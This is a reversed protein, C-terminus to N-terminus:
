ELGQSPVCWRISPMKSCKQKNNKHIQINKGVSMCIVKICHGCVASFLLLNGSRCANTLQCESHQSNFGCNRSSCYEEICDDRWGRTNPKLLSSWQRRARFDESTSFHYPSGGHLAPHIHSKGLMINMDATLNGTELEWGKQTGSCQLHVWPNISIAPGSILGFCHAPIHLLVIKFKSHEVNTWNIGIMLINFISKLFLHLFPLNLWGIKDSSTGRYVKFPFRHSSLM